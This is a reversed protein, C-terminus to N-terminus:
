NSEDEDEEEGEDDGIELGNKRLTDIMADQQIYGAYVMKTTIGCQFYGALIEDNDLTALLAVSKAGNEYLTKIGEELFSSLEKNDEIKM